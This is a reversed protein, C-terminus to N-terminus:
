GDELWAAIMEINYLILRKIQIHQHTSYADANGVTKILDDLRKPDFLDQITEPLDKTSTIAPTTVNRGDGIPAGMDKGPMWLIEDPIQGAMARRHLLRGFVGNKKEIAPTHLFQQILKRDLLPWRFEIGYSAAYQTYTELRPIRAVQFGVSGATVENLTRAKDQVDFYPDFVVDLGFQNIAEASYPTRDYAIKIFRRSQGSPAPPGKIAMKALRALRMPWKGELAGFLAAYAKHNWLEWRQWHAYSTVIEDGGFGSFLTRINLQQSLNFTKFHILPQAHEAPHGMIRIARKIEATRALQPPRVVVHNNRVDAMAATRLIFSTEKEASCMGFCHFDERSHPLMNALVSVISSSDLGGSSEAGILYASRTRRFIAAEFAERYATVWREDRMSAHPADLDFEFYVEPHAANDQNITLSAAPPLRRVNTFATKEKDWSQISCFRAIWERSPSIESVSTKPFVALTTACIFIDEDLYYFLPKAGMTDRACFAEHVIPDYIVFSFDGELRNVCKKGWIRHAALIIQPDTLTACDQIKLAACLDERNDLRVWSAIVRGTETCVEPVAEHSSQPTNWTLAQVIVSNDDSWVGTRDAQDFPTLAALLTEASIYSRPDKRSGRIIVASFMRTIQGWEGLLVIKKQLIYAQAAVDM